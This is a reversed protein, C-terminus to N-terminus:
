KGDKPKPTFAESYAKFRAALEAKVAGPWFINRVAAWLMRGWGLTMDEHCRLRAELGVIKVTQANVVDQLDNIAKGHKEFEQILVIDRM